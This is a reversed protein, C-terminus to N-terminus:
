GADGGERIADGPPPRPGCVHVQRAPLPVILTRTECMHARKLTGFFPFPFLGGKGMWGAWAAWGRGKRGGGGQQGGWGTSTPQLMRRATWRHASLTPCPLPRPSPLTCPCPLPRPCDMQTCLTPQFPGLCPLANPPCDPCRHASLTSRLLHSHRAAATWCLAGLVLRGAGWRCYGTSRLSTWGGRLSM